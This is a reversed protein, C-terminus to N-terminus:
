GLTEVFKRAQRRLASQDEPSMRDWNKYPMAMRPNCRLKEENRDIFDWYLANFPCADPGTKSKVEYRCARCYDSMRNIYAGSAAYPKSALMGGDAFQSMGLTNPLEVWEYADAYVALYWEHVEQPNAGILLAFNGTIMLRQIHHAYAHELTQGIAQSLCHMDTQGTWYFDPLSRTAGLENRRVYDPGAMWYIGRVYERWGIIQRIFGEAANIPVNGNRYCREVQKCLEIPDILGSNIYPSLISHWLFPEDSLMADQYDGFHALAHNLFHAQQNLADGRTVAFGFSKTSGIHDGFYTEVLEMVERTIKDPPFHLPRPITNDRNARKRNEIDFNWQGGVPENGDMLLGSKRRMDRYFFEMRLQKRGKAWAEFESHSALFRDDSRLTVPVDFRDQWSDLMEKVRWEGAETACIQHPSHREIARALEGTFSGSNEPDDLTVYDVDWGESRLLEAHHRMASFIYVLKAKHHKVYLAEQHIEVLLVVTRRKDQGRLSSINLSLQDGFVPVLITM